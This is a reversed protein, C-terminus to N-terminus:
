TQVSPDPGWRSVSILPAASWQPSYSHLVGVVRHELKAAGPDGPLGCSEAAWAAVEGDPIPTPAPAITYAGGKQTYGTHLGMPKNSLRGSYVQFQPFVCVNHTVGKQSASLYRRLLIHTQTNHTPPTNFPDQSPVTSGLSFQIQM